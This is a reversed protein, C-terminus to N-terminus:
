VSSYKAAPSCPSFTTDDGRPTCKFNGFVPEESDEDKSGFLGILGTESEERLLDSVSSLVLLLSEDERALVNGLKDFFCVLIKRGNKRFFVFSVEDDLLLGPLPLSWRSVFLFISPSAIFRVADGVSGPPAVRALYSEVMHLSSISTDLENWATLTM